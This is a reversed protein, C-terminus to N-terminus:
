SLSQPTSTPQLTPTPISSPPWVDGITAPFTVKTTYTSGAATKVTLEYYMSRSSGDCGTGSVTELHGMWPVQCQRVVGVVRDSGRGGCAAVGLSGLVLAITAFSTRTGVTPVPLGLRLLTAKRVWRGPHIPLRMIRNQAM